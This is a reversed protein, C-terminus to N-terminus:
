YVGLTQFGVPTVQPRARGPHGLRGLRTLGPPGSVARPFQGLYTKFTHQFVSKGFMDLTQFNWPPAPSGLHRTLGRSGLTHKWRAGWPAWTHKWGRPGSCAPPPGPLGPLGLGLSGLSTWLSAWPLGLALFCLSAWPLWPCPPGLSSPRGPVGLSGWPWPRGSLGLLGGPWPAWPPLGPNCLGLSAWHLKHFGLSGVPAWHIGLSPLSGMAGLALPAWPVWPLGSTWTHGVGPFGLSALTGKPGELDGQTWGPEGQHM